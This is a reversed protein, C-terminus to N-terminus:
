CGCSSSRHHWASGRPHRSCQECDWTLIILHRDWLSRALETDDAVKSVCKNMQGEREEKPARALEVGDGKESGDGIIGEQSIDSAISLILGVLLFFVGLVRGLGALEGLVLLGLVAEPRINLLARVWPGQRHKSCTSCTHDSLANEPVKGQLVSRRRLLITVCIQSHLILLENVAKSLPSCTIPITERNHNILLSLSFKIIEFM